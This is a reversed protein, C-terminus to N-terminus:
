HFGGMGCDAKRSGSSRSGQGDRKKAEQYKRVNRVFGDHLVFWHAWWEARRGDDWLDWRVVRWPGTRDSEHVLLSSLWNLAALAHREHPLYCDAWPELPVEDGTAPMYVGMQTLARWYDEKAHDVEALCVATAWRRYNVGNLDHAPLPRRATRILDTTTM